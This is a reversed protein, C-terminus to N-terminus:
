NTLVVATVAAAVVLVTTIRRKRVEKRVLKKLRKNENALNPNSEHLFEIGKNLNAILEYQAEIVQDQKIVTEQLTKRELKAIEFNALLGARASDIQAQTAGPTSIYQITGVVGPVINDVVVGLSDKSAKIIDLEKQLKVIKISDDKARGLYVELKAQSEVYADHYQDVKGDDIDVPSAWFWLALIIAGIVYPFYPKIDSWALNFIDKM